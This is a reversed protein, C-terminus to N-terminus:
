RIVAFGNINTVPFSTNGNVWTSGLDVSYFKYKETVWWIKGEAAVISTVASPVATPNGLQAPPIIKWNKGDDSIFPMIRETSTISYGYAFIVGNQYSMRDTVRVNTGINGGPGDVSSGLSWTVRDASYYGISGNTGGAFVMWIDNVKKPPSQYFRTGLAPYAPWNPTVQTAPGFPASTDFELYSTSSGLTYFMMTGNFTPEGATPQNINPGSTIKVDAVAQWDLCDVSKAIVSYSQANAIFNLSVWWYGDNYVPAHLFGSINVPTASINAPVIVKLTSTTYAAFTAGDTSLRFTPVSNYTGACVVWLGGGYKVQFGGQGPRKTWTVMDPSTYADTNDVVMYRDIVTNKVVISFDRDAFAGQNDEARVTFNFTTAM